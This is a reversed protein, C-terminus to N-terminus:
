CFKFYDKALEAYHLSSKRIHEIEEDALSRKVKAPAGMILSKPPYTAGPPVVAGAAVLSESGIEAGDLIKAGMGILTYDGITCAHVVAQHGITVHNGITTPYSKSAVHVISGDQINTYSGVRIYNVDGRLVSNFWISSHEKITIDGIVACGSAIFVSDDIKPKCKKYPIITVNSM